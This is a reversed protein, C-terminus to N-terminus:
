FLSLISLLSILYLDILNHIFLYKAISQEATMMTMMAAAERETEAAEEMAEEKVQQPWTQCPNASLPSSTSEAIRRKSYSLAALSCTPMRTKSTSPLAQAMGM